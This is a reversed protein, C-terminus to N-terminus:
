MNTLLQIERFNFGWYHFTFFCFQGVQIVVGNISVIKGLDIQFWQQNNQEKAVWCEPPEFSECVFPLPNETCDKTVWKYNKTSDMCACNGKM